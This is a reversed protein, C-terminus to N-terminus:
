KGDFDDTGAIQWVHPVSGMPGQGVRSTGDIFWAFVQGSASQNRWLIDSHGDGDFDGAGAIQWVQGIGGPSGQGIRTTGDMLWIFVQGNTNRWLIDATSSPTSALGDFDGIGAIEWANPDTGGAAGTAVLATGQIFWIVLQGSSTNRWLIDARGDGDFDGVGAVQWATGVGGPSGQGIQTVGDMLWIVTQGTLTNRWLIDATPTATTALGDFDGVGVIEWANPNAGGVSGGAKLQTGEILWIVVQGTLANWWLIDGHNDGDFDGVGAIQWIPDVGGPSGQGIRQTADMLWI